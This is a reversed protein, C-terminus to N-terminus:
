PLAEILLDAKRFALAAVAKRKVATRHSCRCPPQQRRGRAPEDDFSVSALGWKQARKMGM